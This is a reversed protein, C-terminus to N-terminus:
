TFAAVGANMSPRVIIVLIEHSSLANLVPKLNMLFKNM